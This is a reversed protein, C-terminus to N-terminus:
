MLLIPADSGSLCTMQEEVEPQHSTRFLVKLKHKIQETKRSYLIVVIQFTTQISKEASVARISPINSQSLVFPVIICLYTM